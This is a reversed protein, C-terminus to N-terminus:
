IQMTHVECNRLSRGGSLERFTLSHGVAVIVQEPQAMAWRRFHGM